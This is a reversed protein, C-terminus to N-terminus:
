ILPLLSGSSKNLIISSFNWHLINSQEEPSNIPFPVSLAKPLHFSYLSLTIPFYFKEYYFLLNFLLEGKKNFNEEEGATHKEAPHDTPLLDAAVAEAEEQHLLGSLNRQFLLRHQILPYFTM